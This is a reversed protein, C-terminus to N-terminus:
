PGARGLLPADDDFLLCTIVRDPEEAQNWSDETPQLFKFKLGREDNPPIYAELSTRCVEEAYASIAEEDFSTISSEILAERYVEFQHVEECDVKAVKTVQGAGIDGVICDGARLAFVSVDQNEEADEDTTTTDAVSPATADSTVPEDGDEPQTVSASDNPDVSSVDNDDSFLSMILWALAGIVLLGVIAAGLLGWNRGLPEPAYTPPDEPIALDVVDPVGPIGAPSATAPRPASDDGMSPKRWADDREIPIAADRVVTADGADTVPQPTTPVDTVPAGVESIEVPPPGPVGLGPPPVEPVHTEPFPLIPVVPSPV